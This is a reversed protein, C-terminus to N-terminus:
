KITPAPAVASEPKNQKKREAILTAMQKLVEENLKLSLSLAQNQNEIKANQIVQAWSPQQAALSTSFITKYSNALNALNQAQTGDQTNATIELSLEKDYDMSLSFSKVGQLPAPADSTSPPPTQPILGAGWLIKKDEQKNFLDMLDKNSRINAEKKSALSLANKLASVQGWAVLQSNLFVVGINPDKPSIYLTKGEVTEKKIESNPEKQSELLSLLKKEDFNGTVVVLGSPPTNGGRINLGIFATEIDSFLQQIESPADQTLVTFLPIPTLKKLRLGFLINYQAPIFSLADGEKGPTSSKQCGKGCATLLVLLTLVVSLKKFYLYKM